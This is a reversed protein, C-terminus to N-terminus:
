LEQLHKLYEADTIAGAAKAKGLGSVTKLNFHNAAGGQVDTASGKARDAAEAAKRKDAEAKTEFEKRIAKELEKRLEPERAKVARQEALDLVVALYDAAKGTPDAQFEAHTDRLREADASAIEFDKGLRESVLNSIAGVSGRVNSAWLRETVNAIRKPDLRLSPGDDGETLGSRLIDAFDNVYEQKQVWEIDAQAKRSNAEHEARRRASETQRALIDKVKPHELLSEEDLDDLPNKPAETEPTEPLGTEPSEVSATEPTEVSVDSPPAEATTDATVAAEPAATDQLGMVM